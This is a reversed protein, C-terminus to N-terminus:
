ATHFGAANRAGYRRLLRESEQALADIEALWAKDAPWARNEVMPVYTSRVLQYLAQAGAEGSIGLLSHMADLTAQLDKAAACDKLRLVVRRIEPLYDDLLEELMGMRQYSELRALNLIADAPVAPDAAPLGPGTDIAAPLAEDGVLRRVKDYLVSAEVPKILFDNMGAIRAAHMMHQDSHATLAVIPIESWPMGSARIAQAAQVGDMGPMSIDMLVADWREPGQLQDLVAQGHGAEGVAAGAHKLYAAVAKRNQPSDDALLIRKGALIDRCTGAAPQEMAQHLAQVLPLQPCPKSIFGDMGAKLTKMRALHTPESTYAVIRTDRNAPAEGRRIKEVVTFGDLVPMKLDLLVLDYHHAALAELAQVGDSALDIRAGLPQLKHRTIMRQAADDEVILVRKGAFVARARELVTLRHAEIEAAAAPQFRLTFTTFDGLRSECSIEGGFAHMVRRCYALGLGTGGLKGVSRFPDFLTPLAPAPIGPGTDSIEIVGARVTLTVQMDPHLPLYYLANRILNFLLFLGTTEEGRFHFDDIIEVNVRARAEDSEYGYEQVAKEVVDAASLLSLASPDMPKANVEDLIMAILQVGRQVALESEALQRYLVDAKEHSLAATSGPPPLAQEMKELGHKIRSLPNRMEHAISGALSAYANRVKEATARELAFKFLSGGVLVILLIPLRAVYDVPMRPAPDTAVYLLTALGFGAVLMVIMNRWDALLLILFVAMLTNGVAVTGGGHKLSTFVFTLPLTVILVGYSYAFYYPKLKEPWKERLFLAICICANVVRFVLDDYVPASKMFRLLYFAPFGVFGLLSMYRLMLPGHQHYATYHAFLREIRGLIFRGKM